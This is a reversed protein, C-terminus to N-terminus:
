PCFLIQDLTVGYYEALKNAKKLSLNGAFREWKNYTAVSIGLDAAATTQTVNKRARLEKVSFRTVQDM